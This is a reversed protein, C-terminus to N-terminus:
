EFSLLWVDAESTGERELKADRARYVEGMSGEGISTLIEYGGIRSGPQLTM